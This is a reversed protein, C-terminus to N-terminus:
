YRLKNVADQKVASASHLYIQTVRIDSHGLLDKITVLDVGNMLLNTAFTHRLSHPSVKLNIEKCLNNFATKISKIQGGKHNCFIFEMHSDKRRSVKCSSPSIYYRKLYRLMRCLSDNIPIVRYDMTKPSSVRLVMAEYDIDSFRLGLLEQTRVGTNLMVVIMPKIYPSATALLKEVEEVSLSKPPLKQIKLMKFKPVSELYKYEKAKYLMARIYALERNVSNPKLGRKVRSEKYEEVVETTIDDLPVDGVLNQLLRLSRTEGAITVPKKNVQSYSLYKGRFSSLCISKKEKFLSATTRELELKKLVKKAETKTVDGIRIWKKKRGYSFIAYYSSKKYVLAPM